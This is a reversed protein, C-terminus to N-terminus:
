NRFGSVWDDDKDGGKGQMDQGDDTESLQNERRFLHRKVGRVEPWRSGNLGDDDGKQTVVVAEKAPRRAETKVEKM